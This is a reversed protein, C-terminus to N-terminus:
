SLSNRSLVSIPSHSVHMDHGNGGSKQNRKDIHVADEAPMLMHIDDDQYQASMSYIYWLDERLGDLPEMAFELSLNEELASLFAAECNYNMCTSHGEIGELANLIAAAAISSRRRSVYSYDFLCLEAFFIARDYIARTIIPNSTPVSSIFSHIFSHVTVPNVRWDLVQLIKAEMQVIDHMTFEGKSLAALKELQLQEKDHIKTAMYLSTMAALKFKTKDCQFKSVFLDLTSTATAVMERNMGFHDVIRFCWDIMKKRAQADLAVIHRHRPFCHPYGSRSFGNDCLYDGCRYSTLELHTMVAVKDAVLDLDDRPIHQRRASRKMRLNLAAPRIPTM